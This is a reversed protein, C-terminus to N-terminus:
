RKITGLFIGEWLGLSIGAWGFFFSNTVCVTYNKDCLCFFLLLLLFTKNMFHYYATTLKAKDKSSFHNQCTGGGSSVAAHSVSLPVKFSKSTQLIIKHPLKQLNAKGDERKTCPQTCKPLPICLVQRPIDQRDTTQLRTAKDPKGRGTVRSRTTRSPSRLFNDKDKDQRTKDQKSNTYNARDGERKCPQPCYPLPSGKSNAKKTYISM